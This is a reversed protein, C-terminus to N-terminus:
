CENSLRLAIFDHEELSEEIRSSATEKEKSNQILKNENV